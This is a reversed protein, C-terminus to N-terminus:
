HCLPISRGYSEELGHARTSALSLCAVRHSIVGHQGLTAVQSLRRPYQVALGQVRGTRRALPVAHLPGALRRHGSGRRAAYVPM